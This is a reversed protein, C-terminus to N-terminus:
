DHYQKTTGSTTPDFHREQDGDPSRGPPTKGTGEM